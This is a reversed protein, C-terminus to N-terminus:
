YEREQDEEPIETILPNGKCYRGTSISIDVGIQELEKILDRLTYTEDLNLRVTSPFRGPQSPLWTAFLYWIDIDESYRQLAINCAKKEELTQEALNRMYDKLQSVNMPAGGQYATNLPIRPPIVAAVQEVERVPVFKDGSVALSDEEGKLLGEKRLKYEALERVYDPCNRIGTEWNMITRYPIHLYNSFQKTNMGTKQRLEKM